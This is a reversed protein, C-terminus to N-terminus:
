NTKKGIMLFLAGDSGFSTFIMKIQSILRSLYNSKTKKKIEFKENDLFNLSPYSCVFEINNEKFWNLVEDFSHTTEVPHNFQDELWAKIQDDEKIKLIPDIFKIAKLGFSKYIFKYFYNKVRAISNYLGIVVYGNKKLSNIITEFALKPNKTHHLVGNSIIVDFIEKKFIEDFFDANVFHINKVFNSNAFNKGIKLSNETADIAFYSSNTSAALTMSLQCTGSGYEAVLKQKDCIKILEQVFSNTNTNFILDTINEDIKYNPFPNENYFKSIKNATKDKIKSFFIGDLFFLKKKLYNDIM